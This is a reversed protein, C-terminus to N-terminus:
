KRKYRIYLKVFLLSMSKNFMLKYMIREKMSIHISEEELAFHQFPRFRSIAALIEDFYKDKFLDVSCNAYEGLIFKLQQYQRYLLGSYNYNEKLQDLVSYWGKLYASISAPDTNTATNGERDILYYAEAKDLYMVKKARSLAVM